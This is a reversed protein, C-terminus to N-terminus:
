RRAGPRDAVPGGPAPVRGEGATVEPCWGSRQIVRDLAAVMRPDFQTGACRRLEELAVDVPRARRYSRTSTMADFADAVAVVRASEPIQGGM